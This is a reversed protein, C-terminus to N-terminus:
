PLTRIFDAPSEDPLSKLNGLPTGLYLYAVVQDKPAFGLMRKALDSNAMAGTRWMAGLNLEYAAVMMNQVAAGVALVQEWVPIKHNETVEAVAV